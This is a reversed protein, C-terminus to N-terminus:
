MIVFNRHTGTKSSAVKSLRSLRVATHVLPETKIEAFVPLRPFMYMENMDTNVCPTSLRSGVEADRLRLRGHYGPLGCICEVM